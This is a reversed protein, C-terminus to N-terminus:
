SGDGDTAPQVELDGRHFANVLRFADVLWRVLKFIWYLVSIASIGLVVVTGIAGSVAFFPHSDHYTVTALHWIGYIVALIIGLLVNGLIAEGYSEQSM